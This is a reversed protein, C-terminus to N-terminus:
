EVKEVLVTVESVVEGHLKVSVKHEGLERLPQELLVKRKDIEQGVAKGIADAIDASTVSGYLRDGEGARAQFTFTELALRDAFEQTETLERLDRRAEAKKVTGVQTMASTTAAMALGKPILYNRAYGDAVKKVDGAKGLSPVTKLLVVNM